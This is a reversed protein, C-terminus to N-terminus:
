VTLYRTIVLSRVKPLYSTLPAVLNYGYFIKAEAVFNPSFMVLM